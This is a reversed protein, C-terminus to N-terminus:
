CLWLTINRLNIIVMWYETAITTEQGEVAVRPQQGIVDGTRGGLTIQAVKIGPGGARERMVWSM